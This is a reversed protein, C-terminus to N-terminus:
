GEHPPTGTQGFSGPATDGQGGPNASGTTDPTRLASPPTSQANHAPLNGEEVGVQPERSTKIQQQASVVRQTDRPRSHIYSAAIQAHITRPPGGIREHKEALEPMSDHGSLYLVVTNLFAVIPVAVLAGIIQALFTGATVALLVALPHISVASSMLMPQLVHSEIQQVLIIVLLMLLAASVGQDVLLVLVGIAGTVLAGVIPIFAGIFILLGLPLAMSGAGLFLAGLAIFVSDVLAVLAQARIYGKLTIWGRIGAEHIPERAPVPLMRLFWIWIKRGDKLFFFLCFLSILLIAALSVISSTISFASSAIQGQYKTALSAVQNQFNNFFDDLAKKSVHLNFPLDGESLWVRLKGLGAVAKKMLGHSSAALSSAAVGIIAAVIGLGVLLSIVASLTKPVGWKQLRFHLPELLLTLLLAIAIPIFVMNIRVVIWAIGAAAVALVILRWAWASAVRVRWSVSKAADEGATVVPAATPEWDDSTKNADRNKRAIVERWWGRRLEAGANLSFKKEM